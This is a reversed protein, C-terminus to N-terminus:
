VVVTRGGKRQKCIRSTIVFDSGRKSYISVSLTKSYLLDLLILISTIIMANIQIKFPSILIM